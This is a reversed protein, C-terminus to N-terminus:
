PSVEKQVETHRPLQRIYFKPKQQMRRRGLPAPLARLAPPFPLLTTLSPATLLTTAADPAQGPVPCGLFLVQSPATGEGSDGREGQSREHTGGAPCVGRSALTYPAGNVIWACFLTPLSLALVSLHLVGPKYFVYCAPIGRQQQISTVHM